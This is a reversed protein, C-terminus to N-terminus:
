TDPSVQTAIIYKIGGPTPDMGLAAKLEDSLPAPRVPLGKLFRPSPLCLTSHAWRCSYHQSPRASWAQLPTVALPFLAEKPTACLEPVVCFQQNCLLSHVHQQRVIRKWAGKVMQVFFLM